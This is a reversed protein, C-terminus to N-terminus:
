FLIPCALGFHHYASQSRLVPAIFVLPTGSGRPVAMWAHDGGGLGLSLDRDLCALRVGGSTSRQGGWTRICVYTSMCMPTDVYVHVCAGLDWLFGDGEVGMKAQIM